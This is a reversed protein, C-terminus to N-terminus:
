FRFTFIDRRQNIILLVLLHFVSSALLCWPSMSSIECFRNKRLALRTQKIFDMDYVLLGLTVFLFLCFSAHTIHLCEDKHNCYRKIIKKLTQALKNM